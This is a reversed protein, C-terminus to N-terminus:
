DLSVDRADISEDELFRLWKRLDELYSEQTHSSFGRELKLYQVYRLWIRSDLPTSKRDKKESKEM